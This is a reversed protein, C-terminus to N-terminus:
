HACAFGREDLVQTVSHTDGVLYVARSEGNDILLDGLFALRNIMKIEITNLLYFFGIVNTELVIEVAAIEAENLPGFHNLRQHGFLVDTHLYTM